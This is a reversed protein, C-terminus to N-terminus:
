GDFQELRFRIHGDFTWQRTTQNEVAKPAASIDTALSPISLAASAALSLLISHKAM